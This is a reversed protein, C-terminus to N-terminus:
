SADHAVTFALHRTKGLEAHFSISVAYYLDCKLSGQM